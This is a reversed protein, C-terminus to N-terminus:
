SIKQLYETLLKKKIRNVYQRSIGLKLAIQNDSLGNFFNNIIYKQM